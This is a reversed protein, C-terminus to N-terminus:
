SILADSGGTADFLKSGCRRPMDADRTSVGVRLRWFPRRCRAPSTKAVRCDDFDRPPTSLGRRSCSRYKPAGLRASPRERSIGRGGLGAYLAPRPTVSRAPALCLVYVTRVLSSSRSLRARGPEGLFKYSNTPRARSPQLGFAEQQPVRGGAQPSEDILSCLICSPPGTPGEGSELPRRLSM